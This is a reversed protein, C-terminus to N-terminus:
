AYSHLGPLLYSVGLYTFFLAVPQESPAKLFRWGSIVLATLAALIARTGGGTSM